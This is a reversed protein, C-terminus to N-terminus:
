SSMKRLYLSSIFAEWQRRREWEPSDIGDGSDAGWRLAAIDLVLLVMFLVVVIVM